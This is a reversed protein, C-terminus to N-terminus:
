GEKLVLNKIKSYVARDIGNINKVADLFKRKAEDSFFIMDKPINNQQKIGNQYGQDFIQQFTEVLQDDTKKRLKVAMEHIAIENENLRCKRSKSM